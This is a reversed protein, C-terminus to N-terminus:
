CNVQINGIHNQPESDTVHTVNLGSCSFFPWLYFFHPTSRIFTLLFQITEPVVHWVLSHKLFVLLIFYLKHHGFFQLKVNKAAWYPFSFTLDTKWETSIKVRHVFATCSRSSKNCNFSYRYRTLQKKLNDGENKYHEDGKYCYSNRSLTVFPIFLFFM